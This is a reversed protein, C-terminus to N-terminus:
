PANVPEYYYDVQVSFEIDNFAWINMIISRGDVWYDFFLAGDLYVNEVQYPEQALLFWINKSKVIKGEPSEKSVRVLRSLDDQLCTKSWYNVIINFDPIDELILKNESVKYATYIEWDVYVNDVAGVINTLKYINPSINIPEENVIYQWINSVSDLTEYTCLITTDSTPTFWSIDFEISNSAIWVRFDSVVAWDLVVQRVLSPNYITDLTYTIGVSFSIPTRENVILKM